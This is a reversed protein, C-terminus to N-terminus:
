TPKYNDYKLTCQVTFPVLSSEPYVVHKGPTNNYDEYSVPYMTDPNGGVKRVEDRIFEVLEDESLGKPVKITKM